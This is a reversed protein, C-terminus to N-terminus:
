MNKKKEYIKMVAAALELPSVASCAKGTRVAALQIEGSATQSKWLKGVL